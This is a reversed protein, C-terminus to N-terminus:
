KKFSREGQRGRLEDTLLGSSEYSHPKVFWFCGCGYNQLDAMRPDANVILGGEEPADPILAFEKLQLGCLPSLVQEYSYVRHANFMVKPKGVPLVLILSGGRALVRELEKLAKLDGEPDLADGYRGLGIHEVAHMCSLSEVSNSELPLAVLNALDSSLNSLALDVGRYDFFKIPLFASVISAFYLSSSVDVHINPGIRALVRAAWALHFVYHRDFTMNAGKDQLCPIRDRWRVSFRGNGRASLRRFNIFDRAFSTWSAM